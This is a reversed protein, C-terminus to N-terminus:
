KKASSSSSAKSGSSSSSSSAGPTPHPASADHNLKKTEAKTKGVQQKVVEVEAATKLTQAGKLAVDADGLKAANQAELLKTDTGAQDAIKRRKVAGAIEVATCGLSHLAAPLASEIDVVGAEFLSQLEATSCLPATLLTLEDGEKADDYVAHYTATLVKNVSIAISQITSNLLQLQSMSNSSFKGEFIVSAPVGMAAAIHDNVVRMLDVLDSRAEPPRVGPVVQQRDPCAFLNPPLPPPVHAPVSSSGTPRAGAMDTTQLRNITAMMKAQLALNQAVAADDEATASAQVARSESDFFLNAPDLNQAGQTRNIPQTVLMQRARVVEAQLALEELASIFSASQFVTAIPSCINGAADPPSRFFVESSFDQKYISDSNTSFIRYQRRYNSEGVYIFSLECQGVDPVVPVLNVPASPGTARKPTRLKQETSSAVPRKQARMESQDPPDKRRNEYGQAAPGMESQAAMAKGRIFNSFPPPAEEELSVIVFGFQLFHDIVTKAFPVWVDHLHRAFTDKLPVDRGDRRVVCGSSLLQGLLITRAAQISPSAHYLHNLAYMTEHSIKIEGPSGADIASLPSPNEKGKGGRKPPDKRVVRKRLDLGSSMHNTEFFVGGKIIVRVVSRYGLPLVRACEEDIKPVSKRM